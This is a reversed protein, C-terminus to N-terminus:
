RSTLTTLKGTLRFHDFRVLDLNSDQFDRQARSCGCAHGGGDKELGSARQRRWVRTVMLRRGAVAATGGEGSCGGISISLLLVSPASRVCTGDISSTQFLFPVTISTINSSPTHNRPLNIFLARPQCWAPGGPHYFEVVPPDSVVDPLVVRSCPHPEFGILWIATGVYGKLM